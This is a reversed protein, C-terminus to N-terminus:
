WWGSGYLLGIWQPPSPIHNHPWFLVGLLQLNFNSTVSAKVLGAWIAWFRGTTPSWDASLPWHLGQLLCEPHLVPTSRRCLTQNCAMSFRPAALAVGIRSVIVQIPWDSQDIAPQYTACEGLPPKYTKFISRARPSNNISKCKKM